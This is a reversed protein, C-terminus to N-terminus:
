RYRRLRRTSVFSIWAEKTSYVPEGFAAWGREGDAVWLYRLYDYFAEPPDGTAGQLPWRLLRYWLPAPMPVSRKGALRLLTSLPLVGSGVVNFVGPHRELTAKELAHLADEEHVLQMLPDYGLLTTVAPRAFHASVRDWYSPGMIWCTRLVSVDTEAHRARWDAVLSETEIRNRVNHATPHGRLPHGETLFNPNDPWPGYLTTSSAVVLRRVKVAACARLVHLSGLTELEHDYEVDPSPDRRFAAHVLVEVRERELVEAVLADAKPDTLDVRHFRVRGELRYPRRLDLGVIQLGPTRQLLREALRTGLFSRLGTIAIAGSLELAVGVLSPVRAVGAAESRGRGECLM